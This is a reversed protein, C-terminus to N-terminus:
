KRVGKNVGCSQLRFFKKKNIAYSYFWNGTITKWRLGIIVGYNNVLLEVTTM